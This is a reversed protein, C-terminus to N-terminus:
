DLKGDIEAAAERRPVLVALKGARGNYTPPPDLLETSLLLLPALLM